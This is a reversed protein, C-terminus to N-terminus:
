SEQIAFGGGNASQLEVCMRVLAAVSDAHMKRMLNGRHLEVTKHSIRMDRAIAKNSLGELVGDLVERERPSLLDVRAQISSQRNLETRQKRDLEIADRIRQLLIENGVPKTLFEVAGQHMARVSVEVDGYGTLFIVPQPRGREACRQQLELGSMDPIRLDLVVCGPRASEPAALFAEARDYTAAEIDVSELLTQMSDRIAPDDDIVHVLAKM